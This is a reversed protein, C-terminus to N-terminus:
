PSSPVPLIEFAPKKHVSKKYARNQLCTKLPPNTKCVKAWCFKGGGRGQALFFFPDTYTLLDPQM